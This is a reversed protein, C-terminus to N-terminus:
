PLAAEIFRVRDFAPNDAAFVSSLDEVMARDAGHQWLTKAIAVYHKRSMTM